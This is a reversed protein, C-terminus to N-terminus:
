VLELGSWHLRAEPGKSIGKEQRAYLGEGRWARKKKEQNRKYGLACILSILFNSWIAQSVFNRPCLLRIAQIITQPWSLLSLVSQFPCVENQGGLWHKEVQFFACFGEYSFTTFRLWTWSGQLNWNLAFQWSFRVFVWCCSFLFMITAGSLMQDLNRVCLVLIMGEWRLKESEHFM